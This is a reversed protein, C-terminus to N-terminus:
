RNSKIIAAIMLFNIWINILMGVSNFFDPMFPIINALLANFGSSFFVVRVADKMSYPKKFLIVFFYIMLILIIKEFFTSLVILLMSKQNLLSVMVVAVEIGERTIMLFTFGFVM